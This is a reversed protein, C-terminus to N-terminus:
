LFDGLDTARARAEHKLRRWLREVANWLSDETWCRSEGERLPRKPYVYRPVKAQAHPDYRWSARTYARRMKIPIRRWHRGCITESTPSVCMVARPCHAVCCQIRYPKTAIMCGPDLTARRLRLGAPM